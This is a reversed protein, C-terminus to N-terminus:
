ECVPCVPSPFCLMEIKKRTKTASCVLKLRVQDTVRFVPKRGDLGMYPKNEGTCLILLAVTTVMIDADTNADANANM